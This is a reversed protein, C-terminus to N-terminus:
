IVLKVVVFYSYDGAATTVRAGSADNVYQVGGAGTHVKINNADVNIADWGWTTTGDHSIKMMMIADTWTFTTNPSVWVEKILKGGNGGTGHYVNKDQNKTTTGPHNVVYTAGTAGGTLVRDNTFIGTGTVNKLILISGSDAIIIGKNGSTAETVTEGIRMTGTAGDYTVSADGLERNTWDATNIGGTSFDLVASLIIWNAGDSIMRVKDYQNILLLFPMGNYTDSFDNVIAIAGYGSDVKLVTIIKNKCLGADPTKLQIGASGGTALITMDGYTDNDITYDANKALAVNKNKNERAANVFDGHAIYSFYLDGSQYTVNTIQVHTYLTVTGVQASVRVALAVVPDNDDGSLVYDVGEELLTGGGGAATRIVMSRFVDNGSDENLDFLSFVASGVDSHLEDTITEGTINIDMNFKKNM